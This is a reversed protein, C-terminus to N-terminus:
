GFFERKRLPRARVGGGRLPRVVIFLVKKAAERVIAKNLSPPPYFFQGWSSKRRRAPLTCFTYHITSFFDVLNKGLFRGFKGWSNKSCIELKLSLHETFDM